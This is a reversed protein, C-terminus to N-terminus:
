WWEEDEVRRRALKVHRRKASVLEPKEFLKILAVGAVFGGVHAWFAVGGGATPLSAGYLFQLVFWQGLVLWAPVPIIRIFILVVFLTQIRVRPYLVLYGGMIGSVAGSAGITPVPSAPATWIHTAAAAGGALLYFVLYRLHGMSDEINNGFVWLFWMNGILHLWGGHLFMSTLVASWRLGGFRCAVGPALQVGLYGETRGTLEAPIVGYRCVSGYLAEDTMGAGQLYVWVIVNIAILAVTFYPTLETPNEDRLPFM